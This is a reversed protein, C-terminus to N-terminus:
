SASCTCQQNSLPGFCTCCETCVSGSGACITGYGPYETARSWWYTECQIDDASTMQPVFVLAAFVFLRVIRKM